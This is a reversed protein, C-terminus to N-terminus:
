RGGVRAGDRQAVVAEGRMAQRVLELRPLESPEANRWLHLLREGAQRARARDGRAAHARAQTLLMAPLMVADHAHEEPVTALWTLAEDHRGMAALLRARELRGLAGQFFVSGRPYPDMRHKELEAIAGVTDGRLALSRARGWVVLQGALAPDEIMGSRYREGLAVTRALLEANGNAAQAAVELQTAAFALPTPNTREDFVSGIGAATRWRSLRFRAAQVAETTPQTAWLISAEAMLAPVPVIARARDIWAAAAAPRARAAEFNAIALMTAARTTQPRDGDVRKQLVRIAVAPDGGYTAARWAYDAAVDDTASTLATIMASVSDAEGLAIASLWRLEGPLASPSRLAHERAALQALREREGELAAIRGLHVVAALNTSDLALAKEFYPRASTLAVGTRPGQHFLVDAYGFWADADDPRETTARQYLRRASDPAGHWDQFLAQVMLRDHASLKDGHRLASQLATRPVDTQGATAYAAAVAYRFYAVSFTTDLQVARQFADTAAVYRGARFAQEGELWARLADLSSTTRTALAKLHDHEAAGRMAILQRAVEDVATVLLSESAAVARARGERAGTAGYITAEVVLRGASDRVSGTLGFSAALRRTIEALRAASDVPAAGAARLALRADVVHLGPVGDLRASLLDVMGERLYALRDAGAITFPLVAVRDPVAPPTANLRAVTIGASVTVALASMIGWAVVPRQWWARPAAVMPTGVPSVRARAELEEAAALRSALGTVRLQVTQDDPALAAARTAWARAEARDGTAEAEQALRWAASSSLHALRAREIELWAQFREAGAVHLGEALRGTVQAIADRPDPAAFAPLLQVADCTVVTADLVVLEDPTRIAAAGLHRRLFHLSQRLANRAHTDDLDAWLLELLAQRSVGGEGAFALRMLLAFRKQQALVPEVADGRADRIDPVGIVRLAFPSQPLQEPAM